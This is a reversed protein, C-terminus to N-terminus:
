GLPSCGSFCKRGMQPFARVHPMHSSTQIRQTSFPSKAGPGRPPAAQASKRSDAGLGREPLAGWVPPRKAEGLHEGSLRGASAEPAEQFRRGARGGGEPSSARSGLQPDGQPLDCVSHLTRRVSPPPERKGLFLSFAVASWIRPHRAPKRPGRGPALNPVHLIQHGAPNLLRCHTHSELALSSTPFCGQESRRGWVGWVWFLRSLTVALIKTKFVVRLHERM